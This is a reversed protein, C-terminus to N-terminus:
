FCSQFLRSKSSSHHNLILEKRQTFGSKTAALKAAIEASDDHPHKLGKTLEFLGLEAACSFYSRFQTGSPSRLSRHGKKQNRQKPCAFFLFALRPSRRYAFLGYVFILFEKPQEIM